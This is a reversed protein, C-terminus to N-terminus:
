FELLFTNGEQGGGPDFMFSTETKYKHKKRM